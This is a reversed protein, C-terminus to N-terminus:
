RGEPNELFGRWAAWYGPGGVIYTNNHGAGRIRFFRKPPPALRYLREGQAFPVVEDRDGHLIFVPLRAAPLLAAIDFSQPILWGVPLFPFVAKGMALLSEFPSELILGRAEAGEAALKVMVAAGLSRGFLFIRGPPVKEKLWAYAARGDAYLGEEGPSGASRGYGRYDFLFFSVGLHGHLLMLRELRHSINGANGHFWIWTADGKGPVFWGHLKVGDSAQFRVEEFTLGWHAPTEKLEKDPFFIFRKEIM